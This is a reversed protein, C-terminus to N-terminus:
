NIEWGDPGYVGPCDFQNDADSCEMWNESLIAFDNLDVKCNGDLDSDIPTVCGDPDVIVDAEVKVELVQAYVSGSGSPKSMAFWFEKGAPIDVVYDARVWYQDFMQTQYSSWVLGDWYAPSGSTGSGTPEVTSTSAWIQLTAGRYDADVTVTGGSFYDDTTFHYVVSGYRGSAEGLHLHGGYWPDIARRVEAVGSGPGVSNGDFGAVAWLQEYTEANSSSFDAIFNPDSLSLGISNDYMLRGRVFPGSVDYQDAMVPSVSLLVALLVVFINAKM